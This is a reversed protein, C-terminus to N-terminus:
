NVWYFYRWFRSGLKNSDAREAAIAPLKSESHARTIASCADESGDFAFLHEPPNSTFLKKVDLGMNEPCAFALKHDTTAFLGTGQMLDQTTENMVLLTKGQWLAQLETLLNAWTAYDGADLLLPFSSNTQKPNPLWEYDNKTEQLASERMALSTSISSNILAYAKSWLTKNQLTFLKRIGAGNSIANIDISQSRLMEIVGELWEHYSLAWLVDTADTKIFAETQLANLDLTASPLKLELPAYNSRAPLAFFQEEWSSIEGNGDLDLKWAQPRVHLSDIPKFTKSRVYNLVDRGAALERQMYTLQSQIFNNTERSSNWNLTNTISDERSDLLAKNAWAITQQVLAIDKCVVWAQLQTTSLSALHQPMLFPVGGMANCTAYFGQTTTLDPLPLRLTTSSLKTLLFPQAKHGHKGHKTQKAHKVPKAHKPHQHAKAQAPAFAHTLFLGMLTAAFVHKAKAATPKLAVIRNFLM